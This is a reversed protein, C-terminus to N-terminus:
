WDIVVVMNKWKGVNGSHFDWGYVDDFNEGVSNVVIKSAIKESHNIKAMPQLFVGESDGVKFVKTPIAYKPKKGVITEPQKLLFKGCPSVLIPISKNSHCSDTVGQKLNELYVKSWKVIGRPFRYSKLKELKSKNIRIKNKNIKLKDTDKKDM